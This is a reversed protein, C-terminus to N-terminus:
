ALIAGRSHHNQLLPCFCAMSGRMRAKEGAAFIAASSFSNERAKCACRLLSLSLTLTVFGGFQGFSNRTLCADMGAWRRILRDAGAGGRM